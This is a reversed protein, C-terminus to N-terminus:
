ISVLLLNHRARAQRMLVPLAWLLSTLEQHLARKVSHSNISMSQVLMLVSHQSFNTEAVAQWGGTNGSDNYILTNASPSYSFSEDTLDGDTNSDLPTFELELEDVATDTVATVNGLLDPDIETTKAIQLIGTGYFNGNANASELAKRQTYVTRSATLHESFAGVTAESGDANEECGGLGEVESTAPNDVCQAYPGDSWYSKSSALLSGTTPDVAPNGNQDVLAGPASLDLTFGKINGFWKPSLQPEFFAYYLESRNLLQNFANISVAPSSQTFATEKIEQVVETVLSILATTDSQEFSGQIYRRPTSGGGEPDGANAEVSGTWSGGPSAIAAAAAQSPGDTNTNLVTFQARIGEGANNIITSGDKLRNYEEFDDLSNGKFNDNSNTYLQSCCYQQGNDPWPAWSRWADTFFVFQVNTADEVDLAGGSQYINDRRAEALSGPLHDQFYSPNPTGAGYHRDWNTATLVDNTFPVTIDYAHDNPANNNTGYQMVAVKIDNLGSHNIVYDITADITSKSQTFETSSMSGSNDVIFIFRYREQTVCIGANLDAASQTYISTDDARADIMCFSAMSLLLMQGSKLRLLSRLKSLFLTLQKIRM